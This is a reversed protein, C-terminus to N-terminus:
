LRYYTLTCFLLTSAVPARLFLIASNVIELQGLPALSPRAPHENRSVVFAAITHQRVQGALVEREHLCSKFGVPGFNSWHMAIQMPTM